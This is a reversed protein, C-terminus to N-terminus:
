FMLKGGIQIQRMPNAATIRGFSAAGFSSGPNLYTLPGDIVIQHCERGPALTKADGDSSSAYWKGDAV